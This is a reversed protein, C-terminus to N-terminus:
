HRRVIPVSGSILREVAFLLMVISAGVAARLARSGHGFLAFRWWVEGGFQVHRYLLAGIWAEVLFIAGAAFVWRPGMQQRALPEPQPFERGALMLIGLVVALFAALRV